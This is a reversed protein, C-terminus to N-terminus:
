LEIYARTIDPVRVHCSSFMIDFAGCLYTSMVCSLWKALKALHNLTQKRVLHNQNPDLQLWKLKLSQLQKSCANRPMWAVISHPNLRFRACSLVAVYLWICRVSLYECRLKIMQGTQSFPQINTESSLPQPNLHLQM